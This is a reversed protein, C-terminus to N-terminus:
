MQPQTTASTATQEQQPRLSFFAVALLILGIWILLLGIIPIVAGILIVLGTTGFLGVGSKVSVIGLSKRLLVAGIILCVWLIVAALLIQALFDGLVGSIATLDTLQSADASWEAINAANIGLETLFGVAAVFLLGVAVVAGIVALIVAYLANNFVGAESYYDALGKFGIMALILGILALVWGYPAIWPIVGIFLLISGVGGLNKSTEIAMKNKGGLTDDRLM